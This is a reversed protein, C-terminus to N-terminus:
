SSSLGAAALAAQADEYARVRVILGDRLSGVLAMPADVPLKQEGVTGGQRGLMVYGDEGVPRLEEITIWYDPALELLETLWRRIGDHGGYTGEFASRLATYEIAPHTLEIMREIDRAAFAEAFQRAVTLTEVEAM